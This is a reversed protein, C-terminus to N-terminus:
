SHIYTAGDEPDVGVDGARPPRCDKLMVTIHVM